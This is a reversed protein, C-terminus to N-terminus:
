RAFHIKGGVSSIKLMHDPHSGPQKLKTGPVGSYVFGTDSVIKACVTEAKITADTEMDLSLKGNVTDIKGETVACAKLALDGNVTDIKVRGLNANAFRIDGNVASARTTGFSSEGITFDGNVTEFAARNALMHHLHANANVTHVELTELVCKDPLVIELAINPYKRNFLGLKAQPKASVVLKTEEFRINIANEGETCVIGPNESCSLKLSGNPISVLVSELTEFGTSAAAKDPNPIPPTKTEKPEEGEFYAAVEEIPGLSALYDEESLGSDKAAEQLYAIMDKVEKASHRLLLRSKLQEYYDNRM